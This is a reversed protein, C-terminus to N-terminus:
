ARYQRSEVLYAPFLHGEINGLELEPIVVPLVRVNEARSDLSALVFIAGTRQSCMRERCELLIRKKAKSLTAMAIDALGLRQALLEALDTWRGLQVAIRRDFHAHCRSAGPQPLSLRRGLPSAGFGFPLLCLALLFRRVFPPQRGGSPNQGKSRSKQENSSSKLDAQKPPLQSENAFAEGIAFLRRFSSFFGGVCGFVRQYLQLAGVNKDKVHTRDFAFCAEFTFRFKEYFVTYSVVSLHWRNDIDSEDSKVEAFAPVGCPRGAQGVVMPQHDSRNELASFLAFLNPFVNALGQERLGNTIIFLSSDIGDKRFGLLLKDKESRYDAIVAWRARPM